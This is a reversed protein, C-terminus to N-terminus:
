KPIRVYFTAGADKKSEFTIMVGTREALMHAIYLGLGTGDPKLAKANSARYFREFIRKQEEEPIGIGFDKVEFVVAGADEKVNVNIQQGSNSYNIANSILSELIQKLFERNARVVLNKYEKINSKISVGRAQAATDVMLVIDDYLDSVSVSEKKTQTVEGGLQLASLMDLVLKIMRENISYIQNLYERQKKNIKGIIERQMTEILWKTGSLPTRLQHSALALFDQQIKEAEKEKTLDREIGVFFDIKGDDGVIPTILTDAVYMRGNKKRNTVEGHFTKKDEKITKWLADYFEKPMQKGWLSPRKGIMEALSYGTIREAAKNAYLIIGDADTIIIHEEANEVALKFKEVEQMPTQVIKRFLFFLVIWFFLATIFILADILIRTDRLSTNLNDLNFYVEVAGVPEGNGSLLVPVYVELLRPYNQESRNESKVLKQIKVVTEGRIAKGLEENEPFREGVIAADDSFVVHASRDWIKIRVVNSAHVIEDSFQRFHTWGDAADETLFDQATLEKQAYIRVLDAAYSRTTEIMQKELSMSVVISLAAALGILFIATILSFRTALRM